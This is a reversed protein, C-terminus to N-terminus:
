SARYPKCAKSKVPNLKVVVVSGFNFLETLVDLPAISAINGAGLVVTLSGVPDPIRHFAGAHEELEDITIGPQMWVDAVHASLFLRDESTAPFVRVAVQGNPLTRADFGELIPVGDQIRRLTDALSQAGQAVAYPGSTWEEGVLQSDAPIEKAAAAADVWSQAVDGVRTRIKDLLNIKTAIPLRAWRTKNGAITEVTQDIRKTDM